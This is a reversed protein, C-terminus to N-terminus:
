DVVNYDADMLIVIDNVEDGLQYHVTAEFGAIDAWVSRKLHMFIRNTQAFEAQKIQLEQLKLRYELSKIKAEKAEAVNGAKELDLSKYSWDDVMLHLTDIDLQILNINEEITLIMEDLENHKVTDTITIEVDVSDGMFFYARVNKEILEQDSLKTEGKCSFILFSVSLLLLLRM